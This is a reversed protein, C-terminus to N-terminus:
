ARSFQGFTRCIIEKHAASLQDLIRATNTPYFFAVQALPLDRESCKQEIGQRAIAFAGGGLGSAIVLGVRNLIPQHSFLHDIHRRIDDAGITARRLHKGGVHNLIGQPLADAYVIPSGDQRICQQKLAWTHTGAVRAAVGYSTNWFACRPAHRFDYTGIFNTVPKDANPERGIVLILPFTADASAGFLCLIPHEQDM